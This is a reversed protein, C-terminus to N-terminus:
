VVMPKFHATQQPLLKQQMMLSLAALFLVKHSRRHAQPLSLVVVLQVLLQLTRATTATCNDLKNLEAATATVLVGGLSLGVSSGNHDPLSMNRAAVTVGAASGTQGLHLVSASLFIVGLEGTGAGIAQASSSLDQLNIYNGYSSHVTPDGTAM